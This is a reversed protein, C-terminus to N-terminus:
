HAALRDSLRGYTAELMPLAARVTEYVTLARDEDYTHSTENRAQLSQLGAQEDDLLGAVFAAGIVERPTSAQIGEDQLM